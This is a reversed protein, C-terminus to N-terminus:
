EADKWVDQSVRGLREIIRNRELLRELDGRIGEVGSLSLALRVNEVFNPPVLVAQPAAEEPAPEVYILKRVVRREGDRREIADIASEFPKNDLYGGDAFPRDLLQDISQGAELYPRFFHSWRTKLNDLFGRDGATARGAADALSAIDRLTVPE